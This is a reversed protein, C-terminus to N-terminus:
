HAALLLSQGFPPAVREELTRVLPVVARDWARLARTERPWHGLWKVMVVWALLGPANVYKLEDVHLGAAAAAQSLSPKTYRRHHGLARDFDGFAFEFAPVLVVVREAFARAHRLATTDDGIHELVNLMVAASFSGTDATLLDLERVVVRSDGAYREQLHKRLTPDRETLTLRPVGADLWRQAHDGLGSGIEIPDDGLHPAVLDALWEIYNRATGVTELVRHQLV